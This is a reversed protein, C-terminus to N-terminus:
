FLTICDKLEIIQLYEGCNLQLESLQRFNQSRYPPLKRVQSWFFFYALGWPSLTYSKRHVEFEVSQDRIDVRFYNKTPATRM